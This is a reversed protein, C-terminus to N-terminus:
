SKTIECESDIAKFVDEWPKGPVSEPLEELIKIGWPQPLLVGSESRIRLIDSNKMKEPDISIEARVYKTDYKKPGPTLDKIFLKQIGEKLDKFQRVFTLYEQKM